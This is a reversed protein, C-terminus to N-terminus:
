KARWASDLRSALSRPITRSHVVKGLHPENKAHVMGGEGDAIGLHLLDRGRFLLVDGARVKAGQRVKRFASRLGRTVFEAHGEGRWYHPPLPDPTLGAATACHHVLGACDVGHPPAAQGLHFPTGVCEMAAALIREGTM